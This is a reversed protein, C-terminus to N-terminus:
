PNPKGPRRGGASRRKQSRDVRHTARSSPSEGDTGAKPKRRSAARRNKTVQTGGREVLKRVSAATFCRGRPTRYGERNLAEAIRESTWGATQWGQVCRWLDAAGRVQKWRAVPRFVQHETVSGYAWHLHVKVENSSAPAWVVVSQLLRRVIQRKEAFSTQPARWLAPLNRALSEIQAREAPSLRTPQAKQFRRYEEELARQALLSEEWARELSRAVLRNEPEVANYQRFARNAEQSARELRLQWQRDLAARERQFEQAARISLELSAPTVVELVLESVLHELPEGALSQCHPAGYDLTRRQCDYRLSQTYRTQMRCGCQGCVVLGALTAATRRAPGPQPGHRRQEKLRRVNSEYQERSIYAPHNDHIVVACEDPERRVRGSGRRGPQVRRPDTAYRGWTYTGAYAPNRMIQRLTERHPAHWQLKGRKPGGTCRFPLEIRHERLYRLLASIAGLVEFQKLVLRMVEQVQEDPDFQLKRDTGVVYGPPTQGLWEGRRCRNLRGAQM